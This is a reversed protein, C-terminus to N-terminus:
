KAMIRVLACCRVASCLLMSSRVAACRMACSDVKLSRSDLDLRHWQARMAKIAYGLARIRLLDKGWFPMASILCAKSAKYVWIFAFAM